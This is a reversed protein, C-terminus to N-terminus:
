ALRALLEATAAQPTTGANIRVLLGKQAYFEILSATQRQYVELRNLVTEESDDPRQYLPGGCQDCVGAQKPPINTLHYVAGCTKCIRRGSLRSVIVPVPVELLFVQRVSGGLAALTADLQRAQELTRPFGDFMYRDDPKGQALREGVIRLIVDDPVLEGKEMYAQAERGTPTGAKVAARLMDGTSVHTLGTANRVGEALTGKGAGPAGLLIIAQM